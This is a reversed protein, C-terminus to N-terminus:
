SQSQTDPSGIAKLGQPASGQKGPLLEANNKDGCVEVWVPLSDRLFFTPNRATPPNLGVKSAGQLLNLQQPPRILLLVSDAQRGVLHYSAEPLDQIM